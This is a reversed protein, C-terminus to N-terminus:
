AVESDPREQGKKIAAVAEGEDNVVVFFDTFFRTRIGTRIKLKDVLTLPPKVLFVKGRSASAVKGLDCLEYVVEESVWTGFITTFDIIFNRRGRAIEGNIERRLLPAVLSDMVGHLDMHCPANIRQKDSRVIIRGIGASM